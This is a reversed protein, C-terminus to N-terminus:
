KAAPKGCDGTCHVDPADGGNVLKTVWDVLSTGEVKLTYFEPRTLITHVTGPGVWAHVEVGRDEVFKTNGDIMTMLDDGPFGALSVFRQQVDDYATNISAFRISPDHKGAQVFTGPLSWASAPEGASEPWRPLVTQTGWLASIATTIAETGPYAGSADAIVTIKAEPFVDHALGGYMPTAASGASGGAVVVETASPFSAGAAALATSGNIAGNHHIVVGNGYDHVANGLHLDGTCYPVFVVSDDRFPNKGNGFDLIGSPKGGPQDKAEGSLNRTYSPDEPGCTAATFCAGGGELYFVVRTSTGRHIWFNFESGDSCQCDSPATVKQWTLTTAAASRAPTAKSATATVTTTAKADSESSADNACSAGVILVLALLFAKVSKSM